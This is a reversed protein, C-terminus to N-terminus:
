LAAHDGVAGESLSCAMVRPRNSPALAALQLGAPRHRAGAREFLGEEDSERIPTTPLGCRTAPMGTSRYRIDKQVGAQEGCGEPRQGASKWSSQGAFLCCRYSAMAWMALHRRTGHSLDMSDDSRTDGSTRSLQARGM